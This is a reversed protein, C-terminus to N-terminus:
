KLDSILKSAESKVNAQYADNAVFGGIFSLILSIVVAISIVLTRVKITKPEKTVQETTQTEKKPM